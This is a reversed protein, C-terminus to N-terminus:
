KFSAFKQFFLLLLHAGKINNKKKLKIKPLNLGERMKNSKM